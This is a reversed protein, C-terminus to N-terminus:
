SDGPKTENGVYPLPVIKVVPRTFTSGPTRVEMVRVQGNGGRYLRVIRALPWRSPPMSESRILCLQSERLDRIARWWKPRPILSQVYELSWRRWWHDRMSQLLRWRSLRSAPVDFLSPEPMADLPAGILFHGPTLAELDEPDDSMAQLSRSNLCAEVEALFTTMEEFTFKSEGIVRRLHHKVAKVAAEWLDGFHLAAPPNFRWRVGTDALREVIQHVERGAPGLFARLQSDVGVFTIGCDSYITHCLERRIMFRHLVALFADSSYDSVVELHVARTSFCVFVSLFAKYIRHRRGRSTRLSIPRADVGTHLFPQDPTVRAKSLLGM